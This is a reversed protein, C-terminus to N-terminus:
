VISFWQALGLPDALDPYDKPNANIKYNKKNEIIIFFISFSPILVFFSNANIRQVTISRKPM